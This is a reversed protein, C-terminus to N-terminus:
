GKLSRVYAIVDMLQKDDLTPNGGKPPMAVKTTNLPDSTERGKKIFDLFQQDNLGKVFASTVLDKGLGKVGKADPGHCAQCTGQFITKGANADGALNAAPAASAQAPAAPANAAPQSSNCGATWMSGALLLITLTKLPAQM